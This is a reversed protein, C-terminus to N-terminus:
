WKWLTINPATISVSSVLSANPQAKRVKMSTMPTGGFVISVPLLNKENKINDIYILYPFHFKNIHSYM